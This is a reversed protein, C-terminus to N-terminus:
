TVDVFCMQLENIRNPNEIEKKSLFSALNPTTCALLCLLVVFIAALAEKVETLSVSRPFRSVVLIFLCWEGTVVILNRRV